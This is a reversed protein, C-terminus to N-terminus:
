CTSKNLVESFVFAIFSTFSNINDTNVQKADFWLYKLNTSNPNSAEITFIATDGVDVSVDKPQTIIITDGFAAFAGTPVLSALLMVVMLISIVRKKM